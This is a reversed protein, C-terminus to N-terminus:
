IILLLKTMRCSVLMEYCPTYTIKSWLPVFNPPQTNSIIDNLFEGKGYVINGVENLLVIGELFKLSLELEDM